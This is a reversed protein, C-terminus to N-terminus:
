CVLCAGNRSRWLIPYKIMELVLRLVLCCGQKLFIQAAINFFRRIPQFVLRRSLRQKSKERLGRLVAEDSLLSGRCWSVICSLVLCCNHLVRGHFRGEPFVAMGRHTWSPLAHELSFRDRNANLAAEM